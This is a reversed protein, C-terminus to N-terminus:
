AKILEPVKAESLGCSLKYEMTKCKDPGLRSHM